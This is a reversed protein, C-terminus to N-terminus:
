LSESGNEDGRMKVVWKGSIFRPERFSFTISTINLCETGVV